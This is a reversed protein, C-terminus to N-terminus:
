NADGDSPLSSSTRTFALTYPPLQTSFPLHYLPSLRGGPSYPLMTCTQPHNQVMSHLLSSM